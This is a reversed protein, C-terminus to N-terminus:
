LNQHYGAAFDSKKDSTQPNLNNAKSYKWVSKGSGKWDELWMAREEACYRKMM